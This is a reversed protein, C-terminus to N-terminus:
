YERYSKEERIHSGLMENLERKIEARRDNTKYVSRALEIFEADFVKDREKERLRDEVEWLHENTARLQEILAKIAETKPIRETSVAHLLQLEHRINDLKAVDSVRAVKIELITIKDILEGCSVAIMISM